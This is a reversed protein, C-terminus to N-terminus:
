RGTVPGRTEGAGTLTTGGSASGTEGGATTNTSEATASTGEGDVTINRDKYFSEGAEVTGNFVPTLAWNPLCTHTAPIGVYPQVGRRVALLLSADQFVGGATDDKILGRPVSGNGPVSLGYTSDLTFSKNGAEDAAQAAYVADAVPTPIYVVSGPQSIAASEDFNNFPRLWFGIAPGSSPTVPADESGPLHQLGSSVWLVLDQRRISDGKSNSIGTSPAATPATANKPAPQTGNSPLLLADFDIVPAFPLAQNLPSGGSQEWERRASVAM